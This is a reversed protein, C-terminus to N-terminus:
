QDLQEKLKNYEKRLQDFLKKPVTNNGKQYISFQVKVGNHRLKRELRLRMKECLESTLDVNLFGYNDSKCIWKFYSILTNFIINIMYQALDIGHLKVYVKEHSYHNVYNDIFIDVSVIDRPSNYSKVVNAMHGMFVKPTTLSSIFKDVEHKFTNFRNPINQSIGGAISGHIINCFYRALSNNMREIDYLM